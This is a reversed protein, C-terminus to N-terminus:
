AVLPSLPPISDLPSRKERPLREGGDPCKAPSKGHSVGDHQGREGSDHSRRQADDAFRLPVEHRATASDAAVIASGAKARAGDLTTVSQSCAFLGMSALAGGLLAFSGTKRYQPVHNKM